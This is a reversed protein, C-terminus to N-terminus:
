RTNESKLTRFGKSPLFTSREFAAALLTAVLPMVIAMALLSRVFEAPRRFLYSTDDFTSSLGLGFVM